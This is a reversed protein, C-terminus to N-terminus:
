KQSNKGVDVNWLTSLVAPNLFWLASLGKEIAEEEVKDTPEMAVLGMKLM